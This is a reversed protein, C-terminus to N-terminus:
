QGLKGLGVIQFDDGEVRVEVLDGPYGMPPQISWAWTMNYFVSSGGWALACLKPTLGIKFENGTEGVLLDGLSPQVWFDMLSEGIEAM